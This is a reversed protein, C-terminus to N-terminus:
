VSSFVTMDAITTFGLSLYLSQGLESAALIIHQKGSQQALHFISQMIERALGQRRYQPSTQVDDIIVCSEVCICRAWAALNDGQRIFYVLVQDEEFQRQRIVTSGRQENFWSCQQATTVTEVRGTSPTEALDVLPLYMLKEATVFRYQDSPRAPLLSAPQSFCTIFHVSNALQQSFEEENFADAEFVFMEHKRKITGIPEQFSCLIGAKTQQRNVPGVRRSNSWGIVFSTMHNLLETDPHNM